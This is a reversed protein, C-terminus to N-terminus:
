INTTATTTPEDEIYKLRDEYNALDKKIDNIQKFSLPTEKGKKGLVVGKDLKTRLREIKEELDQRKSKVVTIVKPALQQRAARASQRNRKSM